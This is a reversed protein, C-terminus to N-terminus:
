MVQCKQPPASKEGRVVLRPSLLVLSCRRRRQRCFGAQIATPGFAAVVIQAKTGGGGPFSRM